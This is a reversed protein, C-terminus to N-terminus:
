SLFLQPEDPMVSISKKQLSHGFALSTEPALVEILLAIVTKFNM